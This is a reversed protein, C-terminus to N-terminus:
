LFKVLFVVYRCHQWPKVNDHNAYVFDNESCFKKLFINGVQHGNLNDRRPVISSVLIYIYIYIYICINAIGVINRPITEPDQNSRLPKDDYTIM